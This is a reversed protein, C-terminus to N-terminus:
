ESTLGLRQMRKLWRERREPKEGEVMGILSEHIPRFGCFGLINRRLNKLGHAGFYWRYFFAPMGMTVVIRVSKGSLLKEFGKGAEPYRYAFGPRLVQELFAKLLAPMTGLWLPYFIVLHDAWAIDEQAQRLTDPAQGSEYDEQSRLLSFELEAVTILRVEHGAAKAGETYSDALAHGFHRNQVDPHGQLITIHRTM